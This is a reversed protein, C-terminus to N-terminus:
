SFTQANIHLGSSKKNILEWCKKVSINTMNYFTFNATMHCSLMEPLTTMLQSLRPPIASHNFAATKFVTSGLPDPLEFREGEAV